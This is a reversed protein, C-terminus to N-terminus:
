DEVFVGLQGHALPHRLKKLAKAEIQRIRERTLDFAEGIEALTRPSPEGIGFRLRLIKEERTTLRNLVRRTEEALDSATLEETPSPLDRDVIFDGLTSEQDQGVPTELSLPERALGLVQQVKHMPLGVTDSIESADPERGLKRSLVRTSQTVKALNELMHVPVRITRAQDAIARSMAQRIWWTAYTAFKYGLRHDFKDVGIMLGVNGEQILDLFSMGRNTYRKAISVVLRLNAAIMEGKAAEIQRRGERIATGVAPPTGGSLRGETELQTAISDILRDNLRLESLLEFSRAKLRKVQAARQRRPVARTSRSSQPARARRDMRRVREIVRCVREVDAGQDYDPRDEDVTRLVQHLRLEGRRLMAPWELIAAMGVPSGVVAELVRLKGAEMRKALDVERQRDLLPVAAMKRLYMRLPDGSGADQDSDEDRQGPGPEDDESSV